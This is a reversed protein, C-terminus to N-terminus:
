ISFLGVSILLVCACSNCALLSSIFCAISDQLIKDYEESAEALRKEFEEVIGERDANQNAYEQEIKELKAGFKKAQEILEKSKSDVITEIQDKSERIALQANIKALTVQTDALEKLLQTFKIQEETDKNQEDM